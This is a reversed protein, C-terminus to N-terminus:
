EAFTITQYQNRQIDFPTLYHGLLVYYSTTHNFFLLLRSILKVTPKKFIHFSLYNLLPFGSNVPLGQIEKLEIYIMNQWDSQVSMVPWNKPSRYICHSCELGYQWLDSPLWDSESNVNNRWYNDLVIVANGAKIEMLRVTSEFQNM